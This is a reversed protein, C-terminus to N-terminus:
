FYMLVRVYRKGAKDKKGLEYIIKVPEIGIVASRKEINLYDVIEDYLKTDTIQRNKIPYSTAETSSLYKCLTIMPTDTSYGIQLEQPEELKEFVGYSFMIKPKLGDNILYLPYKEENGKLLECEIVEVINVKELFKQFPFKEKNEVLEKGEKTKIFEVFLFM